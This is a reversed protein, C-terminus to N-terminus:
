FKYAVGAKLQNNSFSSTLTQGGLTHTSNGFGEYLYEGRAIINNTIQGEMGVGLAVGVKTPTSSATPTSVKNEALAVGATAYPMVREFGVGARARLSANWGSRNKYNVGGVTSTASQGSLNADAEVGVVVNQGINANYGGYIGGVAGEFSPNATPGGTFRDRASGFNYGAQVGVYAGQWNGPATGAPQYATYAAPPPNGGYMDAALAPGAALLTLASAFAFSVRFM